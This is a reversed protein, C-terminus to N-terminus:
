TPPHTEVRQKLAANHTQFGALAAALVRGILPVILGRYTEGQIVHTCRGGATPELTFWHEGSFIGPLAGRLRLEREPAATLVRPRITVPRGSPPHMRFKVRRGVVLDGEARQIQPNWQPYGDFDTLAAWVESAPRDIDVAATVTRTFRARLRRALSAPSM